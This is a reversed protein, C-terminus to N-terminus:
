QTDSSGSYKFPYIFGTLNSSVCIYTGEGGNKNSGEARRSDPATVPFQVIIGLILNCENANRPNM